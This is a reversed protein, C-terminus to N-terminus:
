EFYGLTRLREMVKEEETKSYSHEERAEEAVISNLSSIIFNWVDEARREWDWGKALELADRKTEAYLSDEKLLRLVL